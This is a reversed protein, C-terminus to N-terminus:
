RQTPLPCTALTTPASVESSRGTACRMARSRSPGQRIRRSLSPGAVHELVLANVQTEIELVRVVNQHDVQAAARAERAFRLRSKESGLRNQSLCKLAVERELSRDRALIVVGMGGRGIVEIPEFRDGLSEAIRELDEGEEGWLPKLDSVTEPALVDDPITPTAAPATSDVETSDGSRNSSSMPISPRFIDHRTSSLVNDSV